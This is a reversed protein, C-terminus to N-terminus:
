RRMLDFPRYLSGQEAVSGVTNPSTAGQPFMTPCCVTANLPEYGLIHQAEALASAQAQEDLALEENVRRLHWCNNQGKAANQCTEACAIAEHGNHQVMHGQRPDSKSQVVMHTADVHLAVLAPHVTIGQRAM